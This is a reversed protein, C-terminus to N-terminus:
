MKYGFKLYRGPKIEVFVYGEFSDGEMGVSWQNVWIGKIFRGYREEQFEGKPERVIEAVGYIGESEEIIQLVHKYFTRGKVSKIARLIRSNRRNCEKEYEILGKYCDDMAQQDDLYGNIFDHRTLDPNYHKQGEWLDLVGSLERYKKERDNM